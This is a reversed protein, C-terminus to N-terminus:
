SSRFAMAHDMKKNMGMFIRAYIRLVSIEIFVFSLSTFIIVALQEHHIHSFLVDVGIFTPTIPFGLIGLCSLLFGFAPWPQRHSYGHFHNLSIDNDINRIKNLCIYGVVASVVTGSLYLLIERSDFNRNLMVALVIFLQATAVLLWPRRADSREAFSRVILLLGTLSLIAPLMDIAPGTAGSYFVYSGYMFLVGICIVAAPHTLFLLNKGMWKFPNWLWRKLLPDINWEKISLVYWTASFKGTASKRNKAPDFHYFQDHTLYSLVSPSVLLQYTRFFANGTFHILALIHWGLAVEIFILGIQTISSYAIQTKVTSQVRAISAAVVTTLAGIVIIGIKIGAIHEWFPYTRILLFVGIHVSLSGYFIASSTTPGEMARPLWSTFPLQASKVAAAVLIMIAIFVAYSYHEQLKDQVLVLDTLKLFTINEHWLHHSMWMALMLCIDSLRYISITKLANKVPLYRDRYFAILLFSSIGLFEWGIFMTEFNGSFIVLNYGAFFLLLCNFFRKFGAERHLYYRSFITVLLTLVAGVFAFVATTSDFYFDIFIQMEASSFLTVHKIDLVPCNDLLWYVIFSVTGALQLSITGISLYSIFLEKKKPILLSIIFGAVPIYFFVPLLLQLM